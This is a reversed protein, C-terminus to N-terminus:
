MFDLQSPLSCAWRASCRRRRPSTSSVPESSAPVHSSCGSGSTATASCRHCVSSRPSAWPVAITTRPRRSPIWALLSRASSTTPGRRTGGNASNGPSRARGCPRPFRMRSDTRWSTHGALICWPSRPFPMQRGTPKWVRSSCPAQAEDVDGWLLGAVQDRSHRQGPRLALYALLARAKKSTISLGTGSGATARFGGLLALTLRAM